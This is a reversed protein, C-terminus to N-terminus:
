RGMKGLEKRQAKSDGAGNKIPMEPLMTAESNGSSTGQNRPSHAEQNITPFIIVQTKQHTLILAHLIFM